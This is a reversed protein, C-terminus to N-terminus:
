LPTLPCKKTCKKCRFWDELFYYISCQDCIKGKCDLCIYVLGKINKDCDICKIVEM